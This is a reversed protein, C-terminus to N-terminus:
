RTVDFDITIGKDFNRFVRPATSYTCSVLRDLDRRTAPCYTVGDSIVTFRSGKRDAKPSEKIGALLEEATWYKPSANM